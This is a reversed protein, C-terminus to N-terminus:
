YNLKVTRLTVWYMPAPVFPWQGEVTKWIKKQEPLQSLFLFLIIKKKQLSKILSSSLFSSPIKRWPSASGRQPLCYIIKSKKKKKWVHTELNNPLEILHFEGSSCSFLTKIRWKPFLQYFSVKPNRINRIKQM